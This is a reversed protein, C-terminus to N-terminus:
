VALHTADNEEGDEEEEEAWQCAGAGSAVSQGRCDAVDVMVEGLGAARRVGEVAAHAAGTLTVWLSEGVM